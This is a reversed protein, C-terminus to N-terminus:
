RRHWLGAVFWGGAMCYWFRIAFQPWGDAPDGWAVSAAVTGAFAITIADSFRTRGNM